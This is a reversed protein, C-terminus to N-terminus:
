TPHNAARTRRGRRAAGDDRVLAREALAAADRLTQAVPEETAPDARLPIDTVFVGSPDYASEAGLTRLLGLMPENEELVYARIREIGAM